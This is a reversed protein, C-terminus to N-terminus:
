VSTIAVSLAVSAESLSSVGDTSSPIQANKCNSGVTQSSTANNSDDSLKTHESDNTTSSFKYDKDDDDDEEDSQSSDADGEIQRMEFDTISPKRVLSASTKMLITSKLKQKTYDSISGTRYIKRHLLAGSKECEGAKEIEAPDDVCVPMSSSRLLPAKNRAQLHLHKLHPDAKLRKSRNEQAMQSDSRPPPSSNQPPLPNQPPTIKTYSKEGSKVMTVEAGQANPSTSDGDSTIEDSKADGDKVGKKDM